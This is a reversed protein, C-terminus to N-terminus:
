SELAQNFWPVPARCSNISHVTVRGWELEDFDRCLVYSSDMKWVREVLFVKVVAHFIMTDSSTAVDTIWSRAFPITFQSPNASLYATIPVTNLKLAQASVRSEGYKARRREDTSELASVRM